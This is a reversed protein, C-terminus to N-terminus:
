FSENTFKVGTVSLIDNHLNNVMLPLLTKINTEYAKEWFTKLQDRAKENVFEEDNATILLMAVDGNNVTVIFVFDEKDKKLGNKWYTRHEELEFKYLGYPMEGDLLLAKYLNNEIKSKM